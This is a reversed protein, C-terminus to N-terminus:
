QLLSLIPDLVSRFQGFVQAGVILLVPAAATAVSTFFQADPTFRHPDTRLIRSVLGDTNLQYLVVVVAVASAGILGALADLRPRDPQFPYSAAGLLLLPGAAAMVYVLLRLQAFYWGLALTVLCALFQEQQRAEVEGPEAPPREAASNLENVGFADNISRKEWAVPLQGLYEEAKNQLREALWHRDAETVEHQSGAVREAHGFIWALRPRGNKRNIATALQRRDEAPLAWAAAALHGREPSRSYLYLTFLRAVEDPVREFAGVMPVRLISRLLHRLGLWLTLFRILTLMVAAVTVWFPIRMVWDWWRGEPSPLPIVVVNWFLGVALPIGVVLGVSRGHAPACQYQFEQDIQNDAKRLKSWASPYPLELWRRRALDAQWLSFLGIAFAAAALFGMPVFPSLGAPLDTARVYLFFRYAEPRTCWWWWAGVEVVFVLGALWRYGRRAEDSHPHPWGRALLLILVALLQTAAVFALALVCGHRWGRPLEPAGCCAPAVLEWLPLTYPVTLLLVAALMVGRWCWVWPAEALGVQVEENTRGALWRYWRADGNKSPWLLVIVMILAGVAALQALLVGIPVSIVPRGPGDARAAGDDEWLVSSETLSLMECSVPVITGGEGIVNIWVPPRREEGDRNLFQPPRYGIMLDPKDALALAANYYGQAGQSSFPLRRRDGTSASWQEAPLYLPYTSGVVMGRLYYADDPHALAVSTETTFVRVDACQTRILKCLFVVDRPDTAIIGVYRVRARNIATMIARLQEGATTKAADPDYPQVGDPRTSDPTPLRPETFDRSTLGASIPPHADKGEGAQLRWVSLPFPIDLGDSGIWLRHRPVGEPAPGFAAEAARKTPRVNSGFGTNSERLIAVRDKKSLDAADGSRSLYKLIAEMVVDNAIVTARIPHWKDPVLKPDLATATGSVMEYRLAIPNFTKLKLGAELTRTLSTQSGSYYPGLIKVTPAGWESEGRAYLIAERLRGDELKVTPIPCEWGGGARLLIAERLRHFAELARTLARQQVGSIPHEGVLLVLALHERQGAQHAPKRFLIVGPRERPPKTAEAQVVGARPGRPWPMQASHLTFGRAEFARQLSNVAEDFDMAFPSHVPDPLTAILFEYKADDIRPARFEAPGDPAPGTREVVLPLPLPGSKLGVRFEAPAKPRNPETRFYDNLILFPDPDPDLTPAPSQAPPAAPAPKPPTPPDSGRPQSFVVAGITLLAALWIPTGTRLSPSETPM